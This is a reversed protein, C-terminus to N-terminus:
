VAFNELDRRKIFKESSFFIPWRPMCFPYMKSLILWQLKEGACMIYAAFNLIRVNAFIMKFIEDFRWPFWGSEGTLHVFGRLFRVCGSKVAIFCFIIGVSYSTVEEFFCFFFVIFVDNLDTACLFRHRYFHNLLM